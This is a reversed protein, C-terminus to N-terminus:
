YPAKEHTGVYIVEVVQVSNNEVQWLVVYTPRGKNLHCHYTEGPWNKLKGFHALGPQLPGCAEIRVRLADLREFIRAPLQAAQKASKTSFNVTWKM